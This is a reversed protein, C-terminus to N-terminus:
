IQLILAPQVKQVLETARPQSNVSKYFKAHNCKRAVVNQVLLSFILALVGCQYIKLWSNQYGLFYGDLKSHRKRSQIQKIFIYEPM